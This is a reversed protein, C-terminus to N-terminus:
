QGMEHNTPIQSRLAESEWSANSLRNELHEVKAKLLIIYESKQLLIEGLFKNDAELEKVRDCLRSIEKLAGKYSRDIKM